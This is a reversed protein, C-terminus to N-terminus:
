FPTQIPNPEDHLLRYVPHEEARRRGDRTREYVIIPLSATLEALLRVAGLVATHRLASEPSVVVGARSRSGALEIWGDTDRLTMTRHEPRRKFLDLFGM